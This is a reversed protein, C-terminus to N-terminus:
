LSKQYKKIFDNYEEERLEKLINLYERANNLNVTSYYLVLEIFLYFGKETYIDMVRDLYYEIYDTDKIRNQIILKVMPKYLSYAEEYLLALQKALKKIEENM